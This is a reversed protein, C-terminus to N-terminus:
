DILKVGALEVLSTVVERFGYGQAALMAELERRSLEIIDNADPAVWIGKSALLGLLVCGAAKRQEDGRLQRVWALAEEYREETLMANIEPPFDTPVTSPNGDEDRIVWADDAAWV